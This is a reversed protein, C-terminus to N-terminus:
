EKTVKFYGETVQINNGNLGNYDKLGLYFYAELTTADNTIIKMKGQYAGRIVNGGDEHTMNVPMPFSLVQGAVVTSPISISFHATDNSGNVGYFPAGAETFDVFEVEDAVFPVGNFKVSLPATGTWNFVPNNSGNNNNGTQSDSVETDYQKNCSAFSLVAAALITSITLIKM